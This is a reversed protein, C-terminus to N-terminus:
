GNAEVRQAEGKENRVPVAGATSQIPPLNMSLTDRSSMATQDVILVSCFLLFSHEIWSLVFRQVESSSFPLKSLPCSTSKTRRFSRGWLLFSEFILQLMMLFMIIIYYNIKKLETEITDSSIELIMNKHAIFFTAQYFHRIPINGGELPRRSILPQCTSNETVQDFMYAGWSHLSM